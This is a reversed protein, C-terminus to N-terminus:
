PEGYEVVGSKEWSSPAAMAATEGVGKRDLRLILFRKRWETRALAPPRAHVCKSLGGECPSPEAVLAGLV